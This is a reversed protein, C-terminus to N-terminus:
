PLDLGNDLMAFGAEIMGIPDDSQLALVQIQLAFRAYLRVSANPPEQDLEQAIEVALAEEHRTWMRAGYDRLAPTNELMEMFRKAGDGHELMEAHTDVYLTKLAESISVGPARNRVAGILQERQEDDEDFVIAEKQSFHAFVTTPSVDAADAIERISVNEYGRELFMNTATDSILKRTAAKKRERRGPSVNTM